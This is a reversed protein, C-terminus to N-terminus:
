YVDNSMSIFKSEIIEYITIEVEKNKKIQLRIRRMCRECNQIDKVTNETLINDVYIENKNKSVMRKGGKYNVIQYYGKLKVTYISKKM